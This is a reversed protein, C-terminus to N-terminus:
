GRKNRYVCQNHRLGLGRARYKPPLMFSTYITLVLGSLFMQDVSLTWGSMLGHWIHPSLSFAFFFCVCGWYGGVWWGVWKGTWKFVAEMDRTFLASSLGQPVANNLAIAEELSSVKVVYMIPAFVEEQLAPATAAV